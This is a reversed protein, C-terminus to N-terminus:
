SPSHSWLDGSNALLLTKPYLTLSTFVISVETEFGYSFFWSHLRPGAERSGSHRRASLGLCAVCLTAVRIRGAGRHPCDITEIKYTSFSMSLSKLLKLFNCLQCLWAKTGPHRQLRRESRWQGTLMGPSYPWAWSPTWQRCLCVQEKEQSSQSCGSLSGEIPM